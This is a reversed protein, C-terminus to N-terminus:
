IILEFHCSKLNMNLREVNNTNFCDFEFNNSLLIKFNIAHVIQVTPAQAEHRLLRALRLVLSHWKLTM